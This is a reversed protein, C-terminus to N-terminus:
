PTDASSKEASLSDLCKAEEVADKSGGLKNICPGCTRLGRQAFTKPEFDKGCYFCKMTAPAPPNDASM